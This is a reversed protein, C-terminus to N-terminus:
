MWQSCHCSGAMKSSVYGELICISTALDQIKLCKNSINFKIGIESPQIDINRTWEAYQTRNVEAVINDGNHYRFVIFWHHSCYTTKTRRVEIEQISSNTTTKSAVIDLTHM